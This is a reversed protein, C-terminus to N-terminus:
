RIESPGKSGLIEILKSYIDKQKILIESKHIPKTNLFVTDKKIEVDKKDLIIGTSNAIASVVAQKKVDESLLITNFRSLLDKIEIM